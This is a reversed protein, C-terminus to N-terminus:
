KANSELLIVKPEDAKQENSSPAPPINPDVKDKKFVNFRDNAWLKNLGDVGDKELTDHSLTKIWDAYEEKFESQKFADNYKRTNIEDVLKKNTEQLSAYADKLSKLETELNNNTEPKQEM